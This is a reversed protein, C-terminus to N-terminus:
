VLGFVHRLFKVLVDRLIIGYALMGVARQGGMAQMLDNIIGYKGPVVIELQDVRFVAGLIFMTRMESCVCRCDIGTAKQAHLLLHKRGLVLCEHGVQDGM